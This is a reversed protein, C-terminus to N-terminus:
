LCMRGSPLPSTDTTLARSPYSKCPLSRPLEAASGVGAGSGGLARHRTVRVHGAQMGLAEAVADASQEQFFDAIGRVFFGIRDPERVQGERLKTIVLLMAGIVATALDVDSM